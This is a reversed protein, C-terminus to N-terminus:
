QKVVVHKGFNTIAHNRIQHAELRPYWSPLMLVHLMDAGMEEDREYGTSAVVGPEKM